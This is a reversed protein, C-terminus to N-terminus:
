PREMTLYDGVAAFFRDSISVIRQRGGKGNAVFLRREGVWM